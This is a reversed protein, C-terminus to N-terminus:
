IGNPYRELEELIQGSIRRIGEALERRSLEADEALSDIEKIKTRIKMFRSVLHLKDEYEQLSNNCRRILDHVGQRSIGYEQAIEGLSMDEFVADRYVRKQHDTLLEGYFDFLLGQEVIKEM